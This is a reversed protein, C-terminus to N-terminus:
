IMLIWAEFKGISLTTCVKCMPDKFLARSVISDQQAMRCSHEFKYIACVAIIALVFPLVCGM